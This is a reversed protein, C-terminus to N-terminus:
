IAGALVALFMAPAAAGFLLVFAAICLDDFLHNM